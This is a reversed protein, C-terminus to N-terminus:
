DTAVIYTIREIMRIYIYICTCVNLTYTPRNLQILTDRPSVYGRIIEARLDHRSLTRTYVVSPTEDIASCALHRTSLTSAQLSRPPSLNADTSNAPLNRPRISLSSLRAFFKDRRTPTTYAQIIQSSCNRIFLIIIREFTNIM